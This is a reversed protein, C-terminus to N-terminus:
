ERAKNAAVKDSSAEVPKKANKTTATRNAAPLATKVATPAKSANAQQDPTLTQKASHDSGCDAIAGGAFAFLAAALSITRLM